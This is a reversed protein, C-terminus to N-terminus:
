SKLIHDAQGIAQLASQGAEVRVSAVTFSLKMDLGAVSYGRGEVIERIQDATSVTNIEGSGTQGGAETRTLVVAIVPGGLLGVSNVAVSSDQLEAVVDALVSNAALVGSSKRIDEFTNVVILTLERILGPQPVEGLAKDLADILLQGALPEPSESAAQQAKSAEYRKVKAKLYQVESVLGGIAAQVHTTMLDVPIGLITISDSIGRATEEYTEAVKNAPMDRKNSEGESGPKEEQWQVGVVGTPSTIDSM